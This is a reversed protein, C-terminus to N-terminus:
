KKQSDFINEYQFPKLGSFRQHARPFALSLGHLINPAPARITGAFEQSNSWTPPDEM